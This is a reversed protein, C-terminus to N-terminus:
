RARDSPHRATSARPTTGSSSEDSGTRFSVAQHIAARWGSHPPASAPNKLPRSAAARASCRALAVVQLLLERLERAVRGNLLQERLRDDAVPGISARSVASRAIATADEDDTAEDVRTFSNGATQASASTARAPSPLRRHSGAPLPPRARPAPRSPRPWPVAPRMASRPARCSVSSGVNAQVRQGRHGARRRQIRVQELEHPRAKRRVAGRGHAGRRGGDQLLRPEIAALQQQQNGRELAGPRELKRSQKGANALTPRPSASPRAMIAASSLDFARDVTRASIRRGDERLIGLRDLLRPLRQQRRDMHVRRLLRLTEVLEQCAHLAAINSSPLRDEVAGLGRAQRAVRNAVDAPPDTRVQGSDALHAALPIQEFRHHKRVGAERAAELRDDDPRSGPASCLPTSRLSAGSSITNDVTAPGSVRMGRCSMASM